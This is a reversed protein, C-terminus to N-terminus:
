ATRTTRLHKDSAKRHLVNDLAEAAAADASQIAHTYIKATTSPNAHGLRASITTIPIGSNIMLTANTHRLSHITIDPLSNRKIFRSFWCTITDPHIPKGTDTTFLKDFDEWRDGLMERREDQWARYDRLMEIAAAPAKISRESSRNKTSDTMVGQHPIYVSAREITIVSNDFDIDKWELGCLEERRLGLYMFLKIMTKHQMDEQELCDLLAAASEEDLYRPKNRRQKPLTVRECPNSFILQWKVATGLASSIFRHYHRVTEPSLPKSRVERRFACSIDLELAECLAHATQEYVAKGNVAQGLTSEKVGYQRACAAVSLSKSKLLAKFDDRLPVFVDQKRSGVESLQKYFANLQRPQLKDLRLHGLAQNVVPLLGRYGVVTKQKLTTEAYESFWMDLYDALKIAGNLAVGKQCDEEFLVAQRQVEKEIQKETMGHEPKYTMTKRRQKGQLDYGCSVTILYSNNRKQINAM